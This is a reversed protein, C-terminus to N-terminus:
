TCISSINDSTNLILGKEVCQIAEEGPKIWPVIELKTLNHQDIFNVMGNLDSDCSTDGLPNYDTNNTGAKFTINKGEGPKISNSSPLLKLCWEKSFITTQRGLSLRKISFLGKNSLEITINDGSVCAKELDIQVDQCYIEDGQQIDINDALNLAWQTILIGASVAFGIILVWAILPSVGRKTRM